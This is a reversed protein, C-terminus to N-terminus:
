AHGAELRHREAEAIAHKALATALRTNELELERLRNRYAVRELELEQVRALQACVEDRVRDLELEEPATAM